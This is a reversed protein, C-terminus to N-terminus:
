HPRGKSARWGTRAPRTRDLEDEAADVDDGVLDFGARTAESRSPMPSAIVAKVTTCILQPEPM